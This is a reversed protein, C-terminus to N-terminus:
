PSVSQGGQSIDLLGSLALRGAVQRGRPMLTRRDDSSKTLAVETPRAVAAQGRQAILALM